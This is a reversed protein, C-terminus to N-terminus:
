FRMMPLPSFPHSATRQLTLQVLRRHFGTDPYRAFLDRVLSRPLGFARAGYTVDVWDARRFAEVLWDPQARYTRLKHHELIMAEIEPQWERNHTTLYAHARQLSPVLYDFTRDTWIGLDHFAVAIQMKELRAPEDSSLAACLNIVRYAHNRYPTLDAGLADSHQELIADLTDLKTALM